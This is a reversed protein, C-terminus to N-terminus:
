CKDSANEVKVRCGNSSDFNRLFFELKGNGVLQDRFGALIKSSTFLTLTVIAQVKEAEEGNNREFIEL